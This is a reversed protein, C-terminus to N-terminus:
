LILNVPHAVILGNSWLKFPNEYQFITSNGTGAESVVYLWYKKGQDTAFLLRAFDWQTGTMQILEPEKITKTKVEIYEVEINDEKIVFDYGKGKDGDKNLWEYTLRKDSMFKERLVKDVTREGWEGIIKRNEPNEESSHGYRGGRDSDTVKSSCMNNYYNPIQDNRPLPDVPLIVANTNAPEVLPKWREEIVDRQRVIQSIIEKLEEVSVNEVIELKQRMVTPLQEILDLKFNMEEKLVSLNPSDTNYKDSLESFTVENPSRLKGNRDYLWKGEILSKTFKAPFYALYTRLYTFGYSLEGRFFNRAKWETLDKINDLLLDWLITSKAPSPQDLFKDLGHYEYDKVFDEYAYKKGVINRKEEETLNARTEIRRPKNEVGLAILFEKVKKRDQRGFIDDSVFFVDSIGKFYLELNETKFYARTPKTLIDNGSAYDQCKICNFNRLETLYADKSSQSVKQFALYMKEFDDLYSAGIQVSENSYRPLVFQRLEDLIDPKGLGLLTLFKLSNENEVISSKVTKYEPKTDSPLYVQVQEKENFAAELKNEITRIIPKYRLFGKSYKSYSWLSPQDLLRTYLEILWDDSKTQLFDIDMKRAFNEFDIEEINLERMLYDRLTPTKNFTINTDLWNQKGFLRSIDDEGLFEALEKGRALLINGSRAFKGRSTPLFERELLEERVKKYVASYIESSEKHKPDIPLINLFNWDLYGLEKIVGISEAVLSSLQDLIVKNQDDSLPINERNPTTKFPAQVTFSLFTMYETPLFVFLKTEPEEEIRNDRLRFAVEATLEEEGVRFKREVVLYELAETPSELRVRKASSIKTEKSIKSYSGESNASKWSIEKIHKLFLLTKLGISAVKNSVLTYTEEKRRYKHDFPLSILTGKSELSDEVATPVVFDEIKFKYKGSFIYPTKTVAFVSKFGVGFKGIATFDEKKKSIGIGTVGEVDMLDFDRGNHYIKISDEFLEFTIETAGEDDANQLIEYMFHSPDHYSGALLDDFNFKNTKTSEVWAKRNFALKQLEDDM